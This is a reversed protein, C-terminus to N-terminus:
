YVDCKEGRLRKPRRKEEYARMCRYSCFRVDGIYWGYEKHPFEVAKKCHGCKCRYFAAGKVGKAPKHDRRM